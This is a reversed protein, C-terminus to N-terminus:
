IPRKHMKTYCRFLMIGLLVGMVNFLIDLVSFFRGPVFVQLLENVIGYGSASAFVYFATNRVIKQKEIFHLWLFGLIMYAPIHGLNQLEPNLHFRYKFPLSQDSPILSLVLLLLMYGALIVRCQEPQLQEFNRFM